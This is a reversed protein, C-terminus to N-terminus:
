KAWKFHYFYPAIFQVFHDGSKLSEPKTLQIFINLLMPTEPIHKIEDKINSSCKRLFASKYSCVPFLM